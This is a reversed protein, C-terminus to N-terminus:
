MNLSRQFLKASPSKTGWGLHLVSCDAQRGDLGGTKGFYFVIIGGVGFVTAIDSFLQAVM